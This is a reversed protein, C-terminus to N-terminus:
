HFLLDEVVNLFNLFMPEIGLLIDLKFFLIIGMKLIYSLKKTIFNSRKVKSDVELHFTEFTQM